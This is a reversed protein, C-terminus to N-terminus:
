FFFFFFLFYGPYSALSCRIPQLKLSHSNKWENGNSEPRSLDMTTTDTLTGDTQYLSTNVHKSYISSVKKYQIYNSAMKTLSVKAYFLRVLTSM